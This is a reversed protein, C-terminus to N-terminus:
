CDGNRRHPNRDERKEYYEKSPVRGLAFHNRIDHQTERPCKHYVWEDDGGLRVLREFPKSRRRQSPAEHSCLDVHATSYVLAM